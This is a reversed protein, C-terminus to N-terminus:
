FWFHDKTKDLSYIIAEKVTMKEYFVKPLTFILRVSVYFFLLSLIIIAVWWMWYNEEMYTQIFEPIVIKNFYYIKFIKRIFPFLMAVFIFIFLAKSITLEKMFALSERFVKRSYEILTRKEHYLLHRAGIFLISLQFYAVLLNIAILIVFGLSVIPANKIIEFINNYSIFLYGTQSLLFGAIVSNLPLWIYDVLMFILFFLFLIKDLNLYIKKFGLKKPKEPKM